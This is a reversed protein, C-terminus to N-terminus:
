GKATFPMLMTAGAAELGLKALLYRRADAHLMDGFSALHQVIGWDIQKQGEEEGANMERFFELSFRIIIVSNIVLPDIWQDPMDLHGARKLARFFQGFQHWTGEYIGPAAAIMRATHEGYDARDRFISRFDRVEASLAALLGAYGDLVDGEGPLIALRQGARELYLDTMAELLARKSKFHYWLNGETIGLDAALEATTVNGFHRENFLRLAAEIIRQRTNRAM